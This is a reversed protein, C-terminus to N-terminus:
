YLPTVPELGHMATPDLAFHRAAEPDAPDSPNRVQLTLIPFLHYEILQDLPYPGNPVNGLCLLGHRRSFNPHFFGESDIRVAICPGQDPVFLDPRYYIRGQLPGRDLEVPEAPGLKRKYPADLEFAFANPAPLSLPVVQIRATKALLGDRCAVWSNELFERTLRALPSDDEEIEAGTEASQVLKVLAGLLEDLSAPLRPANPNM